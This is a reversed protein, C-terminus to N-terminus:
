SKVSLIVVVLLINTIALVLFKELGWFILALGLRLGDFFLAPKESWMM